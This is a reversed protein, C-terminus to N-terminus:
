REFKGEMVISIKSDPALGNGFDVAIREMEPPRLHEYQESFVEHDDALVRVLVNKRAESSRFFLVTENRLTEYDLFQPVTYLFDKSANIKILTRAQQFYHAARRGAIEGSESVYDVLDNVHMANGCSFVGDVMTMYNQDCVPGRTKKCIEVGLSEALENEPILGVSLILADCDVFTASNWIPVM